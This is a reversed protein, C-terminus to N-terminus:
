FKIWYKLRLYISLVIKKLYERM